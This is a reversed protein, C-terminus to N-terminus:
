ASKVHPTVGEQAHHTREEKYIKRWAPFIIFIINGAIAPYAGSLLFVLFWFIEKYVWYEGLKYYCETLPPQGTTGMDEAMYTGVQAHLFTGFVAIASLWIVFFQKLVAAHTLAESLAPSTAFAVILLVAGVLAAEYYWTHGPKPGALYRAPASLIPRLIKAVTNILSDAM